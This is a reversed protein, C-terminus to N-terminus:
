AAKFKGGGVPARVKARAAAREDPTFAGYKRQYRRLEEGLRQHRIERAVAAAVFGSVNDTVKKIAGVQDTPLTVTIRTTGAM